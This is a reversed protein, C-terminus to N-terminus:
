VSLDEPRSRRSARRRTTPESPACPAQHHRTQELWARARQAAPDYRDLAGGDKLGMDAFLTSENLGGIMRDRAIRRAKPDEPLALPTGNLAVIRDEVELGSDRFGSDWHIWSVRAYLEGAEDILMITLGSELDDSLIKELPQPDTVTRM